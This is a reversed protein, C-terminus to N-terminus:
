QRLKLSAIGVAVNLGQQVQASVPQLVVTNDSGGVLANAGIGVGLTAQGSVGQYNGVLAGPAVDDTPAFVAWAIISRATFGIDIGFKSISGVYYEDSGPRNFRCRLDKSSGFIFGAGGEVQCNLVGVEVRENGDQPAAVKRAAFHGASQSPRLESVRTIAYVDVVARQRSAAKSRYKMRIEKIFRTDGTLDFVKSGKGVRIFQRIPFDDVKSNGYVVKLDDFFVDSQRVVLQIASFRGERRGVPLVDRDRQFQVSQSGLLQWNQAARPKWGQKARHSTTRGVEIKEAKVGYLQIEAKALRTPDSRYVLEVASLFRDTGKLDIVRTRSGAPVLAKVPIAEVRGDGYKVRVSNLFVDGNKALLQIARFKGDSRGVQIVDRDLRFDVARSGLFDWVLDRGARPGRGRRLFGLSAWGSLQAYSVRCWSNACDGTIKVGCTDAPIGGVIKAFEGPGTRVNLENGPSVGVVCGAHSPVIGFLFYLAATTTGVVIMSKGM